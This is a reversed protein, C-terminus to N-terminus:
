HKRETLRMKKRPQVVRLNAEYKDLWKGITSDYGGNEFHHLWDDSWAKSLEDAIDGLDGRALIRPRGAGQPRFTELVFQVNAIDKPLNGSQHYIKEADIDKVLDYAKQYRNNRTATDM